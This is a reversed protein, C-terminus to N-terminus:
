GLYNYYEVSGTWYITANIGSTLNLSLSYLPSGTSAFVITPPAAAFTATQCINESGVQGVNTWTSVTPKILLQAFRYAGANVTGAVLSYTGVINVIALVASNVPLNLFPAVSTNVVNTYLTSNDATTISFNEKAYRVVTLKPNYPIPSSAVPGPDFSSGTSSSGYVTGNSPNPPAMSISGAIVLVGNNGATIHGVPQVITEIAPEYLLPIKAYPSVNTTTAM